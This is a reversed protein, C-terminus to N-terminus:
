RLRNAHERRTRSRHLLLCRLRVGRLHTNAVKSKFRHLQNTHLRSQSRCESPQGLNTAQSSRPPGPSLQEAYRTSAALMQLSSKNWAVIKVLYPILWCRCLSCRCRGRSGGRGSCWLGCPRRCRRKIVILSPFVILQREWLISDDGVDYTDQRQCSWLSVM